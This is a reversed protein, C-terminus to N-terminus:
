AATQPNRIRLSALAALKQARSKWAHKEAPWGTINAHRPPPEAADVALGVSRIQAVSVDARALVEKALADAVYLQGLMWVQRESLRDIRFVSTRHDHRAPEFAYSKVRASQASFHGSQFLFRATM